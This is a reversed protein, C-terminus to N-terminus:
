SSLTSLLKKRAIQYITEEFPFDLETECVYVPLTSNVIYELFTRHQIINGNTDNGPISQIFETKMSKEPYNETNFFQYNFRYINFVSTKNDPIVLYGEKKYLLDGNILKLEMNQDVFDYVAIGEDLIPNIQSIVWDIFFSIDDADESYNDSFQQEESESIEEDLIFLDDSGEDLIPNIQSIVWDIFFSIDDADESYNDSFQQEESESIEEDLIFLDDASNDPKAISRKFNELRVALSVLESLAPYIKNKRINSLYEKLTGLIKYSTLESDQEPNIIANISLSNMKLGIITDIFVHIM